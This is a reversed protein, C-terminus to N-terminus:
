CQSSTCCEDHLKCKKENIQSSGFIDLFVSELNEFAKKNLSYHVWRGLKREIVFEALKLKKLHHSILSQEISLKDSMDCVCMEGDQLYQIIKIRNRDGLIKLLKEVMIKKILM